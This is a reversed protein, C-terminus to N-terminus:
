AIKIVRNLSLEGIENMNIFVGRAGDLSISEVKGWVMPQAAVTSGQFEYEATIQYLGPEVANGDADIGAWELEVRGSSEPPTLRSVVEGAANTITVEV